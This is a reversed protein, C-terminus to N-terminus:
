RDMLEGHKIAMPTCEGENIEIGQTSKIAHIFLRSVVGVKEAESPIRNEWMYGLVHKLAATLSVFYIAPDVESLKELVSDM